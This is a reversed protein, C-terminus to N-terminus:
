KLSSMDGGLGVAGLAELEDAHCTDTLPYLLFIRKELAYAMAAEMLTSIGVYGAAGNKPFNAVLLADCTRIKKLHDAVFFAKPSSADPEAASANFSISDGRCPTAPHHGLQELRRALDEIQDILAMSGSICIRM